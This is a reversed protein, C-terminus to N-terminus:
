KWEEDELDDNIGCCKCGDWLLDTYRIFSFDGRRLYYCYGSLQYGFLFKAIKSRCKFPCSECYFTKDPIDKEADSVMGIDSYNIYDRLKKDFVTKLEMETECLSCLFWELLPFKKYIAYLIAIFWSHIKKM